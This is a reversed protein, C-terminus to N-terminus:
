VGYREHLVAVHHRVHGVLIWALARVTVPLGNALGTRGWSMADLNRFLLINAQRRAALSETLDALKWGDFNASRVYTDEDFGPLSARDGRSIALARYGFVCESDGLHGVMERISWKGVAYRHASRAEDISALLEQMETQQTEMARVIDEEPVRAVYSAYFPAYEDPQPIM